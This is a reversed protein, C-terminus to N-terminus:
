WRGPWRGKTRHWQIGAVLEDYGELAPNFAKKRGNCFVLEVQAERWSIPLVFLITVRRDSLNLDSVSSWAGEHTGMEDCWRIGAEHLEVWRTRQCWTAAFLFALVTLVAISVSVGAGYRMAATGGLGVAAGALAYLYPRSHRCFAGATCVHRALPPSDALSVPPADPSAGWVTQRGGGLNVLGAAFAAVGLLALGGGVGGVVSVFALSHPGARVMWVKAGDLGPFPDLAAKPASWSHLWIGTMVVGKAEPPKLRVANAEAETAAPVFLFVRPARGAVADGRAFVPFWLGWCAKNQPRDWTPPGLDYDTIVVNRNAGPGREGLDRATIRQPTAPVELLIGRMFWVATGALGALLSLLLGLVIWSSRM